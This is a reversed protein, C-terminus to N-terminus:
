NIKLGMWEQYSEVIGVVTAVTNDLDGDPNILVHSACDIRALDKDIQGLRAERDMADLGNRATLRNVLEDRSEPLVFVYVLQHEALMKGGKMWMRMLKEGGVPDVRFVPVINTDWNLATELERWRLGSYHGAYPVYEWFSGAEAQVMFETPGPLHVYSRPKNKEELRKKRSTATLVRDFRGMEVLEDIVSDKGAGSLGSVILALKEAQASRAELLEIIQPNTYLNPNDPDAQLELNLGHEAAFLLAREGTVM